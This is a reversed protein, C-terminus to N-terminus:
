ELKWRGDEMLRKAEKEASKACILELKRMEEKTWEHPYYSFCNVEAHRFAHDPFDKWEWNPGMVEKHDVFDNYRLRTLRIGIEKAKKINARTM